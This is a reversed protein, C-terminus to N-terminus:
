FLFSITVLVVLTVLVNIQKMVEVEKSFFLRSPTTKCPSFGQADVVHEGFKYCGLEGDHWAFVDLFM